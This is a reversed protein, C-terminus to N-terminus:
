GGRRAEALCAIILSEGEGEGDTAHRRGLDSRVVTIIEMRTNEFGRSRPRLVLERKGGKAGESERRSQLGAESM